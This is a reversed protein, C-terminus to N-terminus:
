DYWLPPRTYTNQQNHHSYFSSGSVLYGSTRVKGDAYIAIMLSDEDGTAKGDPDLIYKFFFYPATGQIVRNYALIVAGNSLQYCTNLASSGSSCTLTRGTPVANTYADDIVHGQLQPLYKVANLKGMVAGHTPSMGSTVKGALITEQWAESLAAIAEDAIARRQANDLVVVVKNIVLTAILGLIVLAILM